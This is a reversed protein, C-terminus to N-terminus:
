MPSYYTKGDWEEDDAFLCFAGPQLRKITEAAEKPVTGADVLYALSRGGLGFCVHVQASDVADGPLQRPRQVLLVLSARVGGGELLIWELNKPGAQPGDPGGADIWRQQGALARRTEDVLLLCPEGSEALLRGAAAAEAVSVGPRLVLTEAGSTLAPGIGQPSHVLTGEYQPRDPYKPDSILITSAVGETRAAELLHRAFCSKGWRTRGYIVIRAGEKAAIAPALCAAIGEARTGTKGSGSTERQLTSQEGRGEGSPTQRQMDSLARNKIQPRFVVKPMKRVEV